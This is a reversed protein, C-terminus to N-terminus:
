VDFGADVDTDPCKYYVRVRADKHEVHETSRVYMIAADRAPIIHDGGCVPCEKIQVTCTASM